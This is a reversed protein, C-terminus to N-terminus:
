GRRLMSDMEYRGAVSRYPMPSRNRRTSRNREAHLDPSPMPSRNRRPSQNCEAEIDPSRPRNPRHASREDSGTQLLVDQLDSYKAMPMYGEPPTLVRVNVHGTLNQLNHLPTSQRNIQNLTEKLNHIMVNTEKDPSRTREPSAPLRRNQEEMVIKELRVICQRNARRYREPTAAVQLDRRGPTKKSELARRAEIQMNTLDSAESHTKSLTRALSNPDVHSPRPHLTKDTNPLIGVVRRYTHGCLEPSTQLFPVFGVIPPTKRRANFGITSIKAGEFLGSLMSSAWEVNPLTLLHHLESASTPGEPTSPKSYGYRNEPTSPKSYGYRNKKQDKNDRRNQAALAEARLQSDCFLTLSDKFFTM